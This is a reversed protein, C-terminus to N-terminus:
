QWEQSLAAEIMAQWVVTTCDECDTHNNGAVMMQETPERLARLTAEVAVRADELHIDRSMDQGDGRNEWSGDHTRQWMAKAVQNIIENM